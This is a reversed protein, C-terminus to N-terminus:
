EKGATGLRLRLRRIEADNREIEDQIDKKSREYSEPRRILWDVEAARTLLQDRKRDMKDLPGKNPINV